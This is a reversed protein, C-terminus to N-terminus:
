NHVFTSISTHKGVHVAVRVTFKVNGIFKNDRKVYIYRLHNKRLLNKKDGTPHAKLFWVSWLDVELQSWYVNSKQMIHSFLTGVSIYFLLELGMHDTKFPVATVNYIPLFYHLSIFLNM